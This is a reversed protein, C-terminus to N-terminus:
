SQLPTHPAPLPPLRTALPWPQAVQWTASSLLASSDAPAFPCASTHDATPGAGDSGATGESWLAGSCLKIPYSAGGATDIMHGAPVLGRLVLAFLLLASISTHRRLWHALRTNM